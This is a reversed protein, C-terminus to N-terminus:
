YFISFDDVAVRETRLQNVVATDDEYGLSLGCHVMQDEPLELYREILEHYHYWSAQPCTALGQGRAALCINDIFMGFDLWSMAGMHRNISFIMGVPANFFKYNLAQFERSKEREGKAIGLLGYLDWGLKRQRNLYPETPSEMYLSKDSVYEDPKNWYADLVVESLASLANGTFVHVNWPQTNKGSPARSAITLIHKIVDIAVPTSKFARVSRRTNIAEDITLM